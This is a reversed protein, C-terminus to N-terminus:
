YGSSAACATTLQDEEQSYTDRDSVDMTATVLELLLTSFPPPSFYNRTSGVHLLMLGFFVCCPEVQAQLWTLSTQCQDYLVKQGEPEVDM